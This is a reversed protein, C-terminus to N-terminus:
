THTHTHTLTPMKEKIHMKNRLSKSFIIGLECGCFSLVALCVWHSGMCDSKKKVSSFGCCFVFFDGVANSIRYNGLYFALCFGVLHVYAMHLNKPLNCVKQNCCCAFINSPVYMVAILYFKLSHNAEM